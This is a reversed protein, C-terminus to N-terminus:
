SLFYKGTKCDLPFYTGVLSMELPLRLTMFHGGDLQPSEPDLLASVQGVAARSWGCVQQVFPQALRAAPPHAPYWYM